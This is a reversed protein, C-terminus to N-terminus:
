ALRLMDFRNENLDVFLMRNRLLAEKKGLALALAAAGELSAITSVAQPLCGLAIESGKTHLLGERPGYILALGVDEPFITTIHGSLGAVAASVLPVGVQKAAAELTFRTGIDDLCDIVIQSAGILRSANEPTLQLDHITVDVSANIARVRERAAQAKSSGLGKHTSLLQRNLNHDEFNDYDIMDLAGVGARALIEIVTGGLGGLGVIAMRTKLLRAQEAPSYTQLNRMYRLPVISNELALIEIKKAAVGFRDAIKEVQAITLSARASGHPSGAAQAHEQIAQLIDATM